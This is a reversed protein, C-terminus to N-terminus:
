RYYSKFSAAYGQARSALMVSNRVQLPYMEPYKKLIDRLSVSLLHSAHRYSDRETSQRSLNTLKRELLSIKELRNLCLADQKPV